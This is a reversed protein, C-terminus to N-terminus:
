TWSLYMKAQFYILLLLKCKVTAIQRNWVQNPV